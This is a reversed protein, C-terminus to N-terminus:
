YVVAGSRALPYTGERWGRLYLGAGPKWSLWHEPMRAPVPDQLASMCSVGGIRVRLMASGKGKLVNTPLRM